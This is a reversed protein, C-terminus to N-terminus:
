RMISSDSAYSTRPRKALPQEDQSDAPAPRKLDPNEYRKLIKQMVPTRFGIDLKDHLETFLQIPMNSAYEVFIEQWPVNSEECLQVMEQLSLVMIELYSDSTGPDKYRSEWNARSYMSAGPQLAQRAITQLRKNLFRDSLKWLALCQKSTSFGPRVFPRFPSDKVFFSRYLTDVYIGFEKSTVDDGMEITQTNGEVFPGNLAREFYQSDATLLAKYVHFKKGEVVITVIDQPYRGVKLCAAKRMM